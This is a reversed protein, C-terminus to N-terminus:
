FLGCAAQAKLIEANGNCVTFSVRAEYPEAGGTECTCVSGGLQDECRASFEFDFACLRTLECSGGRSSTTGSCGVVCGDEELGTELDSCAPPLDCDAQEFAETCAAFARETEESLTPCSLLIDALQASNARCLDLSGDYAEPLAAAACREVQACQRAALAQAPESATSVVTVPNLAEGEDGCAAALFFTM